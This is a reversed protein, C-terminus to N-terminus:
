RLAASYKVLLRQLAERLEPRKAAAALTADLYGVRDGCDYRHGEFELARMGQSRALQDLADTLQIEGNRGPKTQRLYEFIEPTLIYRGPLAMRSPAEQPKPKEVLGDVQWEGNGLSKGQIVGYRSVAEAEVEMIAVTSMQSSQFVDMLQKLCPVKSDIWDDGLLVAFPEDGIVSEAMLVAHGLGMPNPQRISVFRCMGVQRRCAELLDLKGAKTLRDELEYNHDFHDEIAEKQRSTILIIEEIGAQVAEEVILQIMPTDLIPMMEKPIAKTAPLLRTGLGAAPIIAKRVKKGFKRQSTM